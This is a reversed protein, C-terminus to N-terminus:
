KFMRPSTKMMSYVVESDFVHGLTEFYFTVKVPGLIKIMEFREAIIMHSKNIQNEINRRFEELSFSNKFTNCHRCSPFYNCVDDPGGAAVPVVHDVHFSKKLLVGCYACHGGFKSKVEERLEKSIPDRL